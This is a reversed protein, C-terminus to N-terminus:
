PGLTRLDLRVNPERSLLPIQKLSEGERQGWGQKRTCERM